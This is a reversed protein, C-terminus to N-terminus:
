SLARAPRNSTAYKPKANEQIEAHIPRVTRLTSVALMAPKTQSNGSVKADDANAGTSVMGPQSCANAFDVGTVGVTSATRANMLPPSRARGSMVLRHQHVPMM